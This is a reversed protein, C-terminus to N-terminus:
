YKIWFIQLDVHNKFRCKGADEENIITSIDKKRDFASIVMREPVLGPRWANKFVEKGHIKLM